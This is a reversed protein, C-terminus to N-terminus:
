GGIWLKLGLILGSIIGAIVSALGIDIAYDKKTWRDREKLQDKIEQIEACNKKIGYNHAVIDERVKMKFVDGEDNMKQVSNKIAEIDLAVRDLKTEIVALREPNKSM